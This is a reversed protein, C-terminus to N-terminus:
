AYNNWYLTATPKINSITITESKKAINPCSLKINNIGDIDQFLVCNNWNSFADSHSKAEYVTIAWM